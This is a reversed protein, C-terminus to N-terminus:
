LYTKYYKKSFYFFFYFFSLFLVRIYVILIYLSSILMSNQYFFTGYSPISFVSLLVFLVVLDPFLWFTQLFPFRCISPFIQLLCLWVLLFSLFINLFHISCVFLSRSVLSYLLFRMLLMFVQVTGSSLYESGNKFPVLSSSLSISWYILFIIVICLAKCELSSM